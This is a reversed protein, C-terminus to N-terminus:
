NADKLLLIIEQVESKLYNLQETINNPDYIYGAGGYALYPNYKEAESRLLAVSKSHTNFDMLRKFSIYEGEPQEAYKTRLHEVSKNFFYVKANFLQVNENEEISTHIKELMPIIENIDNIYQSTKDKKLIINVFTPNDRPIPKVYNISNFNDIQEIIPKTSKPESPSFNRTVDPLTGVYGMGEYDATKKAYSPLSLIFVLILLILKRM